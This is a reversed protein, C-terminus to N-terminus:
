DNEIIEYSEILHFKLKVEEVQDFHQPLDINEVIPYMVM